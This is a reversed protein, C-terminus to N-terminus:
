LLGCAGPLMYELQSVWGMVMKCQLEVLFVHIFAM